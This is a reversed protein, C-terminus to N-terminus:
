NMKLKIITSNKETNSSNQSFQSSLLLKLFAIQKWSCNKYSNYDLINYELM